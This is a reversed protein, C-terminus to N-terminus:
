RITSGGEVIRSTYSRGAFGDITIRGSTTPLNSPSEPTRPSGGRHPTPESRLRHAVVGGLRLLFRPTVGTRLLNPFGHPSPWGSNGLKMPLPRGPRGQGL